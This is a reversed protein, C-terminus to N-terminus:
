EAQIGDYALHSDLTTGGLTYSAIRSNGKQYRFIERGEVDSGWVVFAYISVDAGDPVPPNAAGPDLERTQGVLVDGTGDCHTWEDQGQVRFKCQLKAVVAAKQHLRLQGIVGLDAGLGQEVTSSDAEDLTLTNNLTTGRLTYSVTTPSGPVYRFVDKGPNDAGWVVFVYVSFEAEPPIGFQGPDLTVSTGVTIGHSGDLHFKQGKDDYYVFQLKAIVAAMNHLTVHGVDM